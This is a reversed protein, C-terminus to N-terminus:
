NSKKLLLYAMKQSLPHALLNILYWMVGKPGLTIKVANALISVGQIMKQRADDSFRVEKAPM